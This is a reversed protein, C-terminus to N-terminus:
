SPSNRNPYGKSQRGDMGGQDAEEPAHQRDGHEQEADSRDKVVKLPRLQHPAVDAPENVAGQALAAIDPLIAEPAQQEEDGDGQRTGADPGAGEDGGQQVEAELGGEGGDQQPIDDGGDQDHGEAM